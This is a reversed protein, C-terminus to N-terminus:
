VQIDLLKPSVGCKAVLEEFHCKNYCEIIENEPRSLWAELQTPQGHNTLMAEFADSPDVFGLCREVIDLFSSQRGNVKIPSSLGLQM